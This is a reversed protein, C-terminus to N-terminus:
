QLTHAAIALSVPRRVTKLLKQIRNSYLINDFFYNSSIEAIKYAKAEDLDGVAVAAILVTAEDVLAKFGSFSYLFARGRIAGPYKEDKENNSASQFSSSHEPHQGLRFNKEQALRCYKAKKEAPLIVPFISDKVTLVVQIPTGDQEALCFYGGQRDPEFHNIVEQVIENVIEHITALERALPEM